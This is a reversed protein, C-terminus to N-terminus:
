EEEDEVDEISYGGYYENNSIDMERLQEKLEEENEAQIYYRVDIVYTKM